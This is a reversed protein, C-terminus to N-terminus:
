NVQIFKESYVTLEWSINIMSFFFRSVGPSTGPTLHLGSLCQVISSSSGALSSWWISHEKETNFWRRPAALLAEALHSVEHHTSFGLRWFLTSFKLTINESFIVKTRTTHKFVNLKWNSFLICYPYVLLANSCHKSVSAQSNPQIRM